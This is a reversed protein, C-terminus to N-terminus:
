KKRLLVTRAAKSKLSATYSKTNLGATRAGKSKLSATRYITEIIQTSAIVTPSFAAISLEGVV